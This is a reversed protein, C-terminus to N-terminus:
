SRCLHALNAAETSGGHEWAVTHDLDCRAAARGCSPFRCTDDRLRLWLRLGASPRYSTRSLDLRAGTHPDTLLRYCSPAEATLRRPPSACTGSSLRPM